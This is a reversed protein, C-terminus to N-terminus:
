AVKKGLRDMEKQHDRKFRTDAAETATDIIANALSVLSDFVAYARLISTKSDGLPISFLFEKRKVTVLFCRLRRGSLETLLSASQYDLAASLAAQRIRSQAKASLALPHSTAM